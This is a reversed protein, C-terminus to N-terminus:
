KKSKVEEISLIFGGYYGNHENHCVLQVMGKSTNVNCYQVEHVDYDNDSVDEAEVVEIGTLIAGIHYTLEDEDECHMYRSECCCQGSDYVKIVVNDTFQIILADEYDMIGMKIDSIEKGIYKSVDM